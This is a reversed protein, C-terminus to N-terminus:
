AKSPLQEYGEELEVGLANAVMSLMTYHGVIFPIEVLAATEYSTALEAWTADTVCSGQHLEDAARLLAAERPSWGAADAGEAIRAIEESSLRALVEGYETHHGWEFESECLFATRLALLENDRPTLVGDLALASAWELFPPLFTPHHAIVTLINLPKAGTTSYTPRKSAALRSATVM